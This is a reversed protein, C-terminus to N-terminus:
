PRLHAALDKLSQGVLTDAARLVLPTGAAEALMCIEAAPPLVASLPGLQQEIEPIPIPCSVASRNVLVPAINLPIEPHEDAAKLFRAAAKICLVDREVVLTLLDVNRLVAWTTSSLASSLDVVVTDALSGLAALIAQAYEDTIEHCATTDNPGFLVRLRPLEPSRWLLSATREASIQDSSMRLLNMLSGVARQPRFCFSLSGASPHIEALIVEREGAWVAALNLAVTTAGVGGKAGIVAVVPSRTRITRRLSRDRSEARRSVISRIAEPLGTFEGGPAFFREAPLTDGGAPETDCLAIVPVPGRQAPATFGDARSPVGARWDDVVVDVGGGAIRAKAIRRDNVAQLRFSGSGALVQAIAGTAIPDASILLM